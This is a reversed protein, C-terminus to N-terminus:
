ADTRHITFNVTLLPRNNDDDGISMVDGLVAIVVYRTGNITTNATGHVLRKIAHATAYADDYGGKAGRIKVQIHPREYV